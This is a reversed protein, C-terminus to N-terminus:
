VEARVTWVYHLWLGKSRQKPQKPKKRFRISSSKQPVEEIMQENDGKMKVERQRSSSDLMDKLGSPSEQGDKSGTPALEVAPPQPTAADSSTSPEVYDM